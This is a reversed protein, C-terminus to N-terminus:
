SDGKLSEAHEQAKAMGPLGPKNENGTRAAPPAAPPKGNSVQILKNDTLTELYLADLTLPKNNKDYADLDSGKQKVVLEGSVMKVDFKSQIQSTAADFAFDKTTILKKDEGLAKGLSKRMAQRTEIESLKTDVEQRVALENAELTSVKTKYGAIEDNLKKLQENEDGSHMKKAKEFCLEQLADFKKAKPLADYEEDTVGYMKKLKNEKSSLVEGRVSKKLPEIFSEKNKLSEGLNLEVGEYLKDVDLAKLKEPDEFESVQTASLGLRTLLKKLKEDM